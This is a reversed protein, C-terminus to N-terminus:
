HVADYAERVAAPIRGREPVDHGNSQAWARVEAASPGSGSPAKKKGTSSKTVKTAVSLYKELSNYFKEAEGATLDITYDTGDWGFSVTPQDSDVIEKGSLDSVYTITTNQAMCM